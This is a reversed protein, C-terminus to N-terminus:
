SYQSLYRQTYRFYGELFDIHQPNYISFQTSSKVQEITFAYEKLYDFITKGESNKMNVLTSHDSSDLYPEILDLMSYSFLKIILETRLITTKLMLKRIDENAFLCLLSSEQKNNKEEFMHNIINTNNNQIFFELLSENNESLLIFLLNNGDNDKKLLFSPDTKLIFLLFGKLKNNTLISPKQKFIKFFYFENNEDLVKYFNPSKINIEECIEYSNQIYDIKLKVGELDSDYSEALNHPSIKGFFFNDIYSGISNKYSLDIDPSNILTNFIKSSCSVGSLFLANDNVRNSFNILEPNCSLIHQVESIFKDGMFSWHLLEIGTFDTKEKFKTSYHNDFDFAVDFRNEM